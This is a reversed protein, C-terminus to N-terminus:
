STFISDSDGVMHEGNDDASFQRPKHNRVAQSFLPSDKVLGYLKM